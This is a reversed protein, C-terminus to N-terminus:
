GPLTFSMLNSPSRETNKPSLACQLIIIDRDIKELYNTDKFVFRTFPTNKKSLWNTIKKRIIKSENHIKMVANKDGYQVKKLMHERIIINRLIDQTNERLKHLDLCRVILNKINKPIPRNYYDQFRLYDENTGLLEVLLHKLTIMLDKLLKELESSDSPINFLLRNLEACSYVGVAKGETEKSKINFYLLSKAWDETLHDHKIDLTEVEGPTSAPSVNILTNPPVVSDTIKLKRVSKRRKTNRPSTEKLFKSTLSIPILELLQEPNEKFKGIVSKWIEPKKINRYENLILDAEKTNLASDCQKSPKKNQCITYSRDIRKNRHVALSHNKLIKSPRLIQRLESEARKYRHTNLKLKLLSSNFSDSFKPNILITSSSDTKRHTDVIRIPPSLSKQLNSLLKTSLFSNRTRENHLPKFRLSM